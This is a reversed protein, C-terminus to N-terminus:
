RQWDHLAPQYWLDRNGHDTCHLILGIPKGAKHLAQAFSLFDAQVRLHAGQSSFDPPNKAVNFGGPVILAGFDVANAQLPNHINGLALRAAEVLVNRTQEKGVEGTLRNGTDMQDRDPAFCQIQANQQSRYLLAATTEYLESGGANVGCGSLVVAAQKPM